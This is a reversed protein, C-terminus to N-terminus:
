LLDVKNPKPVLFAASAFPSNSPRIHGKALHIDLLEDWVQLYKWPTSYGKCSFAMDPKILKIRHTVDPSLKSSDPAGFVGPYKEKYKQNLAKLAADAVLNECHLRVAAACSRPGLTSTSSGSHQDANLKQM